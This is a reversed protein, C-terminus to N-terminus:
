PKNCSTCNPDTCIPAFHTGRKKQKPKPMKMGLGEVENALHAITALKSVLEPCEMLLFKLIQEPHLIKSKILANVVQTPDLSRGVIKANMQKHNKDHPETHLLVIFGQEDAVITDIMTHLAKQEEATLEGHCNPDNCEHRKKQEKM